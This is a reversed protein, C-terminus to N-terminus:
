LRVWSRPDFDSLEPDPGVVARHIFCPPGDFDRGSALTSIENDGLRRKWVRFDRIYGRFPYPACWGPMPAHPSDPTVFGNGLKIDAAYSSLPSIGGESTNAVLKGDLYLAQSSTDASLVVHHWRANAVFPASSDDSNGDAVISRMKYNGHRDFPFGGHLRGSIDVMLLQHCVYTTPASNAGLLVGGVYPVRALAKCDTEVASKSGPVQPHDTDLCLLVTPEAVCRFWCDVSVCSGSAFPFESDSWKLKLQPAPWCSVDTVNLSSGQPNTAAAFFGFAPYRTSRDAFAKWDAISSRAYFGSFPACYLRWFAAPQGAIRARLSRCSRALAAISNLPLLLLVLELLEGSLRLPLPAASPPLNSLDGNGSM